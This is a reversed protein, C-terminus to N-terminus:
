SSEYTPNFNSLIKSAATTPMNRTCFLDKIALPIGKLSCKNDLDEIKKSQIEINEEDFYIFANLDLNKKIRKIFIQNLEKISIKKNQIFKVTETITNFEM